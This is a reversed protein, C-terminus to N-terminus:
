LNIHMNGHLKEILHESKVGEGDMDITHDDERKRAKGTYVKQNRCASPHRLKVDDRRMNTSREGKGGAIFVHLAGETSNAM